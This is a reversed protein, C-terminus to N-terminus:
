YNGLVEKKKQRGSINGEDGRLFPSSVGGGIGHPGDWSGSKLWIERVSRHSEGKM